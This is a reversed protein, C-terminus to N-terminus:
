SGALCGSRQVSTSDGIDLLGNQPRQQARAAAALDPPHPPTQSLSHSRTPDQRARTPPRRLSRDRHRLRIRSIAIMHVAFNLERNGGRDLRHRDTRGSSVPIPACGATRALQADTRFREIGAIEGILAAATIPGVGTEALLHPAAQTVLQKLEDILASISRTLDRIRRLEDRAIRVRAHQEAGAM